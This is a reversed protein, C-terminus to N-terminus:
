AESYLLLQNSNIKDCQNLLPKPTINEHEELALNDVDAVALVPEVHFVVISNTGRIGRHGM